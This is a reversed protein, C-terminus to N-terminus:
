QSSSSAAQPYFKDRCGAAWAQHLEALHQEFHPPNARLQTTPSLLSAKYRAAKAQSLHQIVAGAIGTCSNRPFNEEFALAWGLAHKAGQAPYLRKTNLGSFQIKGLKGLAQRGGHHEGRWEPGQIWAKKKKQTHSHGEQAGASCFTIYLMQRSLGIPVAHPAAWGPHWGLVWLLQLPHLGGGM